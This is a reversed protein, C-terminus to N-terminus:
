SSPIATSSVTSSPISTSSEATSSPISTTSEATSTPNSTTSTSEVETNLGNRLTNLLPYSTMDDLDIAWTMAGRLNRSKLFDLKAQLSEVDDFGIWDGASTGM